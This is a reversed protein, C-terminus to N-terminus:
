GAARDSPVDRPTRSQGPLTFIFTSGQGLESEVWLRGGHTEVICKSIFLGLGLGRRDAPTVQWFREFIAGLQDAAIGAGTDSVSFQVDAGTTEVRISVRGGEATFKIANSLLNALVQLIRQHDFKALGTGNKTDAVLLIGKASASPLFAELCERILADADDNEPTVSLRGAEISAVDILDGILRNMRATLRQIKAAAKLTRAGSEDDSANRMLLAAHLAIGSLLTRLDHSVMGMFDDRAALVTDARAREILLGDDTQERELRLLAALARSQAEREDSLEEDAMHREQLLASDERGREKRLAQREAPTAGHREIEEDASERASLIVDDIQSRAKRVVEDSNQEIASRSKGFEDDAKKRELGLSQDTRQREPRSKPSKSRM